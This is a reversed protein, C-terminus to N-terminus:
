GAWKGSGSPEWWAQERSVQRHRQLVEVVTDLDELADFSFRDDRRAMFSEPGGCDGPPCAGSAPASPIPRGLRWSWGTRSASRMACPIDARGDGSV